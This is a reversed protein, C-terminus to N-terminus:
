GISDPIQSLTKKDNPLSTYAPILEKIKRLLPAPDAAECLHGMEVVQEKTLASGQGEPVAMFIDPHGTDKRVDEPRFLEEHMKEGPRLGTFRIAIDRDPELGGLLIMNKVLDLVKVPEGMNLVFIEGGAAMTCAQLILQVAEQTTMFYRTAEPHTVTVPGGNAIQEKFINVVSGSSGLVNGFRVAMFKTATSSASMATLIMEGLRKTAGMVSSPRVAKDTSIFLVREAGYAAATEALLQTALTNNKVAEQPNTEMLPVHKHAAAHFVLAPKYTKFINGLLSRDKIDGALPVIETSESLELLEKEIYFLATNHNELLLLTKPRFKLIQRCLEAGITGGAGTVLVTKGAVLRTVAAMDTQVPKRNLLDSLEIKRLGKGSRSSYALSESLTPVTKFQVKKLLLSDKYLAILDGILKGRSHNVAIIVEDVSYKAIVRALASRGGLIPTGHINHGWKEHNDDLFGVVYYKNGRDRKIGRLISEGLDGAGFILVKPLEATNGKYRMERTARIFFRIGGVLVITLIPDILIVARSFNAHKLFLIAALIFVQSVAIAKFVSTLDNISAYRWIGKYLGFYYFAALRAAIVILVTQLFNSFQLEPPHFDFRLQFALWFSVAVAVADASFVFWNRHKKLAAKM